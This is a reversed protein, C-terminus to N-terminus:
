ERRNLVMVVPHGGTLALAPGMGRGGGGGQHSHERHGVQEILYALNSLYKKFRCSVCGFMQICVISVRKTLHCSSGYVPQVGRGCVAIVPVQCCLVWPASVCPQLHAEAEKVHSCTHVLAAAPPQQPPPPPPSCPPQMLDTGSLTWLVGHLAHASHFFNLKSSWHHLM